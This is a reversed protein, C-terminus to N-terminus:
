ISLSSPTKTKQIKHHTCEALYELFVRRIHYALGPDVDLVLQPNKLGTLINRREESTGIVLIKVITKM